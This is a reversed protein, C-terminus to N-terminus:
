TWQARTRYVEVGAAEAENFIDLKMISVRCADVREDVFCKDVIEDLLTELLATHPRSPFQRLFDRIGDYDIFGFQELRRTNLSAFLTVNILLRNPREPHQEWPHLGCRAEVIVNRLKVEVHDGATTNM